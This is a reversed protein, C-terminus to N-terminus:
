FVIRFPFDAAPDTPDFDITAIFQVNSEVDAEGRKIQPQAHYFDIRIM